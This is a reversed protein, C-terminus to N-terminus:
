SLWGYKGGTIKRMPQVDRLHLLFEFIHFFIVLIINNHHTMRRNAGYIVFKIHFKIGLYFFGLMGLM